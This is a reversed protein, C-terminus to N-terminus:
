LAENLAQEKQKYKKGLLTLIIMMTLCSITGGLTYYIYAMYSVKEFFFGILPSNIMEGASLALNFIISVFGRLGITQDIWALIASHPIVGGASLLLMFCWVAADHKEVLFVLGLASINCIILGGFIITKPSLLRVTFIM